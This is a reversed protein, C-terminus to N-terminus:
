RVVIGDAIFADIRRAARDTSVGMRESRSKM